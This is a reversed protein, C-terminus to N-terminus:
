ESDVGVAAPQGALRRARFTGPAALVTALPLALVQEWESTSAEREIVVGGFVRRGRGPGTLYLGVSEDAGLTFPASTAADTGPTLLAPM